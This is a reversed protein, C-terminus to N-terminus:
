YLEENNTPEVESINLDTSEDTVGDSEEATEIVEFDKNILTSYSTYTVSFFTSICIIWFLARSNKNM